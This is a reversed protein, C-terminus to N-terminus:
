IRPLRIEIGRSPIRIEVNHMKYRQTEQMSRYFLTVTAASAASLRGRFLLANVSGGEGSLIKPTDARLSMKFHSDKGALVTPLKSIDGACETLAVDYDGLTFDQKEDIPIREVPVGLAEPRIDYRTQNRIHISLRWCNEAGISHLEGWANLAERNSAKKFSLFSILLGIASVILALSSIIESHTWNM